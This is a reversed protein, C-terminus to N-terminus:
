SPMTGWPQMGGFALPLQAPTSMLIIWDAVQIEDDFNPKLLCCFAFSVFFPIMDEGKWDRHDVRKPQNWKWCKNPFSCHLWKFYQSNSSFLKVCCGAVERTIFRTLIDKWYFGFIRGAKDKLLDCLWGGESLCLWWCWFIQWMDQSVNYLKWM